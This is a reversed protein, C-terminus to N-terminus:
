PKTDTIVMAICYEDMCSEIMKTGEWGIYALWEGCKPCTTM